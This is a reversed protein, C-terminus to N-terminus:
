VDSKVTSTRNRIAVVLDGALQALVVLNSAVERLDIAGFLTLDDEITLGLQRSADVRHFGHDVVRRGPLRANAECGDFHRWSSLVSRM